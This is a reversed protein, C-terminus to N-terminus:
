YTKDNTRLDYEEGDLNEQNTPRATPELGYEKGDSNEEVAM